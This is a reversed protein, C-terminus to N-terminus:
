LLYSLSRPFCRRSIRKRDCSSSTRVSHACHRDAHPHGGVARQEALHPGDTGSAARRSLEEGPHLPRPGPRLSPQQTEPGLHGEEEGQQGPCRLPSSLDRTFCLKFTGTLSDRSAIATFIFSNLRVRHPSTRRTKTRTKTKTCCQATPTATRGTCTTSKTRTRRTRTRKRRAATRGRSSAFVQTEWWVGAVGRSWSRSLSRATTSRWRKMTMMRRRMMMRRRLTTTKLGPPLLADLSM